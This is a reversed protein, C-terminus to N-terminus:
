KEVLRITRKRIFLFYIIALVNMLGIVYYMNVIGVKDYLFGLFVNNFLSVIDLFFYLTAIAAGRRHPLTRCCLAIMAPWYGSLGTYYIIAALTATSSKSVNGYIFNSLSMLVLSIAIVYDVKDRDILLGVIIGVAVSLTGAAAIGGTVNIGKEIGLQVTYYANIDKTINAFLGITCIPLVTVSLGSTISKLWKTTKGTDQTNNTIKRDDKLQYDPMLVICLVLCLIALIGSMIYAISFNYSSFLWTSLAPAYSDGLAEMITAIATASGVLRLDIISPLLASFVAATYGCMFGTLFRVIGYGIPSHVIAFLVANVAMMGFGICVALKIKNKDMLSGAFGRTMMCSFEFLNAIIGLIVGTIGLALGFSTLPVMIMQLVFEHLFVILCAFLLPKQTLDQWYKKILEKM